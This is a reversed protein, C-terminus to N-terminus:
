VQSDVRIESEIERQEEKCEKITKQLDSWRKNKKFKDRNAPIYHKIFQFETIGQTLVLGKYEQYPISLITHIEEERNNEFLEKSM